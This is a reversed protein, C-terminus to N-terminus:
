LACGRVKVGEGAVNVVKEDVKQGWVAVWGALVAATEDGLLGQTPMHMIARLMIFGADVAAIEYVRAPECVVLAAALPSVDPARSAPRSHSRTIEVLM